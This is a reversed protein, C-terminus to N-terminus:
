LVASTFFCMFVGGFDLVCQVANMCHADTSSGVGLAAASPYAHESAGVGSETGHLGCGLDDDSM